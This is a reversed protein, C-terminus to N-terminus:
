AEKLTTPFKQICPWSCYNVHPLRCDGPIPYELKRIKVNEPLKLLDM